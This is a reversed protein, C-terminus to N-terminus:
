GIALWMRSCFFLTYTGKKFFTFSFFFPFFWLCQHQTLISSHPTATKSTREAAWKAKFYLAFSARVMSSSHAVQRSHCHAIFVVKYHVAAQWMFSLQSSGVQTRGIHCQARGLTSHFHHSCSGLSHTIDSSLFRMILSISLSICAKPNIHKKKRGRVLM